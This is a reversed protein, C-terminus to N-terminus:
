LEKDALSSFKGTFASADGFKRLDSGTKKLLKFAVTLEQDSFQQKGHEIAVADRMIQTTSKGTFVYSEDLFGRAKEIVETHRKVAGAVADKFEASDTVPVTPAEDTVEEKKVIEEDKLKEPDEDAGEITDAAPATAGTMAIIEQLVPMIEQLKDMPVSKLAEPLQQAIEVIQQLNPQGDADTFAKHLAEVTKRKKLMTNVGEPMKDIFSCAAGCRGATVVALHHPLLDIQEFDYRDHPVLKGFYGLSLQRKGTNLAGSIADTIKIRNRLALHATTDSDIFDIIESSLVSGVPNAVDTDLSVHEDTLPVGPMSENIKAITAPSRYVTFLKDAPEQGIESGLYEIVGDRVSVASKEKDDWTVSDTFFALLATM